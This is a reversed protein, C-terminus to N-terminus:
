DRAEQSLILIVGTSIIMQNTTKQWRGMQFIISKFDTPIIVNGVSHFFLGFTGFWWGTM